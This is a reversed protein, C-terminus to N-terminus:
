TADRQLLLVGFWKKEDTFVRCVSLGFASLYEILDELMFKRSIESM